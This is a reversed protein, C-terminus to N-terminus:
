ARVALPVDKLLNLLDHLLFDQCHKGTLQHPLVYPTVLCDSVIGAWVNISFQQQHRSHIVGHNEETWQYQSHINIISDRGFCAEETFPVLSVFFHEANQILTGCVPFDALM